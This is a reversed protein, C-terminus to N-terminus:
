PHFLREGPNPCSVRRPHSDLGALALRAGLSDYHSDKYISIAGKPAILRTKCSKSSLIFKSLDELWSGLIVSYEYDAFGAFKDEDKRGKRGGRIVDAVM